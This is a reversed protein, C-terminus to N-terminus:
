GARRVDWPERLAAAFTSRLRARALKAVPGAADGHGALEDWVLQAGAEDGRGCLEDIALLFLEHARPFRALVRRITLLIQPASMRPLRAIFGDRALEAEPEFRWARAHAVVWKARPEWPKRERTRDNGDSLEDTAIESLTPDIARLLHLGVGTGPMIVECLLVDHDVHQALALVEDRADASASVGDSIWVLCSCRAPPMGDVITWPEDEPEAADLHRAIRRGGDRVLHLSSPRLQVLRLLVAEAVLWPAASTPVPESM